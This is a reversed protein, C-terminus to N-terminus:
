ASSTPQTFHNFKNPTAHSKQLTVLIAEFAKNGKRISILCINLNGLQTVCAFLVSGERSVRGRGVCSSTASHQSGLPMVERGDPCQDPTRMQLPWEHEWCFLRSQEDGIIRVAEQLTPVRGERGLSASCNRLGSPSVDFSDSVTERREYGEDSTGPEMVTRLWSHCKRDKEMLRWQPELLLHPLSLM